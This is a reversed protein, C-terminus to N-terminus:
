PTLCGLHSWRGTNIEKELQFMVHSCKSRSNLFSMERCMLPLHGTMWRKLTSGRLLWWDQSKSGCSKPEDNILHLSICLCWWEGGENDNAKGRLRIEGGGWVIKVIKPWPLLHRCHSYNISHPLSLEGEWLKHQWKSLHSVTFVKTNRKWICVTDNQAQKLFQRSLDSVSLGDVRTNSRLSHSALDGSFCM